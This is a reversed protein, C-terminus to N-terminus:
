YQPNITLEGAYCLLSVSMVSRLTNYVWFIVVVDILKIWNCYWVFHLLPSYLYQKFFSEKLTILYALMGKKRFLSVSKERENVCVCVCM